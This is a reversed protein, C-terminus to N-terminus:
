KDKGKKDEEAEENKEDEPPPKPPDVKRSRVKRYLHDLNYKKRAEADKTHVSSALLNIQKVALYVLAKQVYMDKVKEPLKAFRAIDQETDVDLLAAALERGAKVLEPTIEVAALTELAPEALNALREVDHAVDTIGKGGQLSTLGEPVDLPVLAAAKARATITRRWVKASELADGQDITLDEAEAKMIERDNMAATLKALADALEALRAPKVLALVPADEGVLRHTYAGQARVNVARRRAGIAILKDRPHLSIM